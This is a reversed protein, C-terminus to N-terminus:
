ALRDSLLTEDSQEGTGINVVRILSILNVTAKGHRWFTPTPGEGTYFMEITGFVYRNIDDTLVAPADIYLSDFAGKPGCDLINLIFERDEPYFEPSKSRYLEFHVSGDRLFGGSPVILYYHDGFIFPCVCFRGDIFIPNRDDKKWHILDESTALGTCRCHEPNESNYWLHYIDGVKIIGWPDFIKSPRGEIGDWTRPTPSLVPNTENKEWNCGDLSIALGIAYNGELDGGRYLMYWIGNDKFVSACDIHIDWGVNAGPLVTRNDSFWVQSKRPRWARYVNRFDCWYLFDNGEDRWISGFANRYFPLIPNGEYKHAVISHTDELRPKVICDRQCITCNGMEM